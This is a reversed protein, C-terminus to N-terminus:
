EKSNLWIVMYVDVHVELALEALKALKLIKM